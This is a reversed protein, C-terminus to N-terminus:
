NLQRHGQTADIVERVCAGAFLLSALKDLTTM